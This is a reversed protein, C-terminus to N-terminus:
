FQAVGTGNCGSCQVEAGEGPYSGVGTGKCKGCDPPAPPAEMSNGDRDLVYLEDETSAFLNLVVQRGDDCTVFIRRAVFAPRRDGDAAFHKIEGARVRNVNMVSVEM